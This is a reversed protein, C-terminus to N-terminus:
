GRVLASSVWHALRKIRSVKKLVICGNAYFDTEWGRRRLREIEKKDNINVEKTRVGWWRVM